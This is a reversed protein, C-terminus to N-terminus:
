LEEPFLRSSRFVTVVEVTGSRVRYVVRFPKVIVERVNATGREPVIRGSEPFRELREVAAFIRRVVLDAYHASDEAIYARVAELDRRAQPSWLIPTV